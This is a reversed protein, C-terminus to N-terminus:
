CYKSTDYTYSVFIFILIYNELNTDVDQILYDSHHDYASNESTQDTDQEPSSTGISINLVGSSSYKTIIRPYNKKKGYFIVKHTSM